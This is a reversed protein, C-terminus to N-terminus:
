SVAPDLVEFEATDGCSLRARVGLPLTVQPGAAHGSSLGLAIPVDLGDLADLIVDELTFDAERRPACGKMDGFIVGRVGEFAGARCLQLLMRDIKYPPEDVDELFLITPEGQPRLAWRTGAANALLSLCGGRLRGEAMGPRLPLLDDEESRYPAGEGTLGHLLSGRHYSGSALDVAVMPGHLSVLGQANLLLHLVTADSFGVFPKPHAVLIRADLGALLRAAGAGGRACAIAGVNDDAFLDHLEAIRREESGAMFLKREFLGEPVRVQFGLYRLETVGRELQEPDVAGAPACVGILGGDRLAPPRTWSM